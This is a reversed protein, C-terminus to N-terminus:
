NHINVRESSPWVTKDKKRDLLQKGSIILKANMWANCIAVINNCEVSTFLIEKAKEMFLM